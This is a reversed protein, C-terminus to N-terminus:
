SLSLFKCPNSRKTVDGAGAMHEADMSGIGAPLLMGRDWDHAICCHKRCSLEPGAFYPLEMTGRCRALWFPAPELTRHPFPNRPFDKDLYSRNCPCGLVLGSKLM